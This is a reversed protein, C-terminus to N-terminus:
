LVKWANYNIHFMQNKLELSHLQSSDVSTLNTLKLKLKKSLKEELDM